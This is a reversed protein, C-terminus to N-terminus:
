SNLKIASVENIHQTLQKPKLTTKKDYNAM